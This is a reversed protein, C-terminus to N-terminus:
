LGPMTRPKETGRFDSVFIRSQDFHSISPTLLHKGRQVRHASMRRAPLCAEATGFVLRLRGTLLDSVKLLFTLVFLELTITGGIGTRTHLLTTTSTAHSM